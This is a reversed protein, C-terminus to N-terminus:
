GPMHVCAWKGITWFVLYSGMAWWPRGHRSYTQGCGKRSASPIGFLGHSNRSFRSRESYYDDLPTMFLSSYCGLAGCSWWELRPTVFLEVEFDSRISPPRHEDRFAVISANRRFPFGRLANPLVPMRATSLNIYDPLEGFLSAWVIVPVYESSRFHDALVIDEHSSLALPLSRIALPRGSRKYGASLWHRSLAHSSTTAEPM